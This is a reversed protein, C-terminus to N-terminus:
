KKRKPKGRYGKTEKYGWPNKSERRQRDKGRNDPRKTRRGHKDYYQKFGKASRRIKNGAKLFASVGM